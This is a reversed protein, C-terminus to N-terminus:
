DTILMATMEQLSIVVQATSKDSSFPFLSSFPLAQAYQYMSTLRM